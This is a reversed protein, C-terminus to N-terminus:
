VLWSSEAVNQCSKRLWLDLIPWQMIYITYLLMRDTAALLGRADGNELFSIRKGYKANTVADETYFHMWTPFDVIGASGIKNAFRTELQELLTTLTEDVYHEYLVMTIM